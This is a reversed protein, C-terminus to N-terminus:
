MSEGEKMEYEIINQPKDDVISIINDCWISVLRDIAEKTYFAYPATAMINEKYEDMKKDNGYIEFAYSIKSVLGQIKDVSEQNILSILTVRENM